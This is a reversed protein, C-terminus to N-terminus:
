KENSDLDSKIGGALQISLKVILEYIAKNFYRLGESVYSPRELNRGIVKSLNISEFSFYNKERKPLMYMNYSALMSPTTNDISRVNYKLTALITPIYGVGFLHIINEPFYDHVVETVQTVFEVNKSKDKISGIAVVDDATILHKVERCNREYDELTEGQIVFVKVLDTKAEAFKRTNRLHIKFAELKTMGLPELVEPILPVDLMAVWDANINEALEIIKDQMDLFQRGLKKAESLLGSDIFLLGKMYSPKAYNKLTKCYAYSYLINFNIPYLLINESHFVIFDSKLKERLSKSKSPKVEKLEEGLKSTEQELWNLLSDIEARDFGTLDVLDDPLEKIVNALKFYDWEGQIKNLAINLTKEEEESLNVVVVDAEKYGLEKLVKLRQHGAVLRNTKENWVLPEVLDFKLISQKLAEYEPDGPQLDKRPNYPSPQIDELKMKKIVM